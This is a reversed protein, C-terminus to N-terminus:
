SRQAVEVTRQIRDSAPDYAYNIQRMEELAVLRDQPALSFWYARDKEEAEAFSTVSFASRDLRSHVDAM